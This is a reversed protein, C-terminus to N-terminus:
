DTNPKLAPPVFKEGGYARLEAPFIGHHLFKPAARVLGAHISRKKGCTGWCCIGSLSIQLMVATAIAGSHVFQSLARYSKL